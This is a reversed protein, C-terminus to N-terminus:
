NKKLRGCVSLLPRFMLLPVLTAIVDFWGDLLFACVLVGLMLIQRILYSGQAARQVAAGNKQAFAEAEEETMEGTGREAMAKDIARNVSVSLIVFNLIAVGSGLLCGAIVAFSFRKLILYVCSVILSVILEGIVLTMIEAVPFNKKQM